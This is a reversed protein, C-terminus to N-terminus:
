PAYTGGLQTQALIQGGMAQEVDDKTAGQDVSLTTDLAFLRFQYTHQRDPPNPGGYGTEGFDNEGEVADTPEWNEPIETREPDINWVVWHDWIKGAPEQADPDDIILVLSETDAPVGDISLSPNVNRNTYGYEDPISEGDAFAQSTLELTTASDSMGKDETTQSVALVNGETVGV